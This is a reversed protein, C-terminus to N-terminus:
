EQSADSALALVDGDTVLDVDVQLRGGHGRVCKEQCLPARGGLIASVRCRHGAAGAMTLLTSDSRVPSISVSFAARFRNRRTCRTESGWLTRLAEGPWALM